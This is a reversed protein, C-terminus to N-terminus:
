DLHTNASLAVFAEFVKDEFGFFVDAGDFVIVDAVYSAEEKFVDGFDRLKESSLLTSRSYVM